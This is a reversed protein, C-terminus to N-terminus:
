SRILCHLSLFMSRLDFLFLTVKALSDLLESIATSAWERRDMGEEDLSPIRSVRLALMLNPM